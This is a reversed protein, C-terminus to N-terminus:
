AARIAVRRARYGACALAAFGLGMMAWASPEPVATISVGGVVPGYPSGGGDLSTFTLANSQGAQFQVTVLEYAMNSESNDGTTYSFAESLSGVSVDVTKTSPGGDPNGSLYFSLDYTEGANLGSITQTIGGPANGDLDVSGGNITPAQWYGGILDVSAGTVTWPGITDGSNYTTFSGGWPSNFDGDQVYNMGAVAPAAIMAGAAAVGLLLAFHFRHGINM